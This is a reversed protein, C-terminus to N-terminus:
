SKRLQKIVFKSDDVVLIRFPKGDARLGDPARQNISQIDM